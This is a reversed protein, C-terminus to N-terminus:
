KSVLLDHEILMHVLKPRLCGVIQIIRYTLLLLLLLKNKDVARGLNLISSLATYLNFYIFKSVSYLYM